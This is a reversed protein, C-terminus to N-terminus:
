SGGPQLVGAGKQEVTGPHLAASVGTRPGQSILTLIHFSSSAEAGRQSELGKGKDEVEQGSSERKSVTSIGKGFDEM